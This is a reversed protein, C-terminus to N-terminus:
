LASPCCTIAEQAEEPRAVGQGRRGRGGHSLRWMEDDKESPALLVGARVYTKPQAARAAPMTGTFRLLRALAIAERFAMFLLTASDARGMPIEGSPVRLLVPCSSGAKM